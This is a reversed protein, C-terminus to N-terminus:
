KKEKESSKSLPFILEGITAVILVWWFIHSQGTEMLYSVTLGLVAIALYFINDRPGGFIYYIFNKGDTRYAKIIRVLWWAFLGCIVASCTYFLWETTETLPSVAYLLLGLKPLLATTEKRTM